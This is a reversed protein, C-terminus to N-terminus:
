CQGIKVLTKLGCGSTPRLDTSHTKEVCEFITFPLDCLPKKWYKEMLEAPLLSNFEHFHAMNNQKRGYNTSEPPTSAFSAGFTSRFFHFLKMFNDWCKKLKFNAIKM